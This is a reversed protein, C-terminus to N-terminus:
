SWMYRFDDRTSTLWELGISIEIDFRYLREMEDLLEDHRFNM